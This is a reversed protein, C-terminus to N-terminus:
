PLNFSFHLNERHQKYAHATGPTSAAKSNEQRGM